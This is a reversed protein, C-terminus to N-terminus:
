IEIIKKQFESHFNPKQLKNQVGLINKKGKREKQKIM